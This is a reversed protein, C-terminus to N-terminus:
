FLERWRVDIFVHASNSSTASFTLTDGPMIHIDLVDSILIRESGNTALQFSLIQTGGTVTTGATDYSMVSNNADINAYSPSGGLTANMKMKITVPKAGDCSASIFDIMSAIKNTLTAFTTANKITVVNTETTIGSKNASIANGRDSPLPGIFSQIRGASWSITKLNVAGSGSTRGVEARIPQVPQVISPVLQRNVVEVKGILDWGNASTGYVEFFDPAVGLWGFNIRFINVKAPNFENWKMGTAATFTDVGGTRFGYGFVGDVQGIYFGNDTDFLGIKQYSGATAASFAATFFAYGDFGPQYRLTHISRVTATGTNTGGASITAVAGSASAAGDGTLTTVCDRTSIGYQFQVLVDPTRSSVVRDGFIANFAQRGIYDRDM